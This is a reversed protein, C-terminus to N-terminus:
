AFYANNFSEKKEQYPTANEIIIQWKDHWSFSLNLTPKNTHVTFSVTKAGKRIGSLFAYDLRVDLQNNTITVNQETHPKIEQANVTIIFTTPEYTGSWHKYRIMALKINNKMIITKQVKSKNPIVQSAKTTSKQHSDFFFPLHWSILISILLIIGVLFTKNSM